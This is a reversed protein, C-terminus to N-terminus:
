GWQNAKLFPAPDDLAFTAFSRVGRWSALWDRMSLIGAQRYSWCSRFDSSADLWRVGVRFAVQPSPAEGTLDRYQLLPFNIGSVTALANQQWLRPNLEILKLAGDRDDRKFELSGIGRFDIARLFQWGLEVVQPSRM